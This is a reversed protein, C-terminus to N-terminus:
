CHSIDYNIAMKAFYMYLLLVHVYIYTSRLQYQHFKIRAAQISLMMPVHMLKCPVLLLTMSDKYFRM